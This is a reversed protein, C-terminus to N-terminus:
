IFRYYNIQIKYRYINLLTKEFNSRGIRVERQWGPTAVEVKSKLNIGKYDGILNFETKTRANTIYRRRQENSIYDGTQYLSIRMKTYLDNFM